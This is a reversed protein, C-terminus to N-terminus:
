VGFFVTWEFKFANAATKVKPSFVARTYYIRERTCLGAEQLTRGNAWSGIWFRITVQFDTAVDWTLMSCHGIEGLLGTQSPNTSTGNDGVGLFGLPGPGTPPQIFLRDRILNRGSMIIMNKVLEHRVQGTLLDHETILVEGSM